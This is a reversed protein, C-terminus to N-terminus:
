ILEYVLVWVQKCEIVCVPFPRTAEVIVESLLYAFRKGTNYLTNEFVWDCNENETAYKYIQLTPPYMEPTYKWSKKWM